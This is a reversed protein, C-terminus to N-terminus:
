ARNLLTLGTGSGICTQLVLDADLHPLAGGQRGLYLHGTVVYTGAAAGSTVTVTTGTAVYALWQYGCWNHGALWYPAHTWLVLHCKDIASQSGPADVYGSITIHRAVPNATHSVSTHHTSVRITSSAAPKATATPKTVRVPSTAAAPSREAAPRPAEGATAVSTVARVGQQETGSALASVTSTVGLLVGVATCAM